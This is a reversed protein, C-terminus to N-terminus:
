SLFKATEKLGELISIKPNYGLLKEAKTIDSYNRLIEGKRKPAYKTSIDKNPFLEKLLNIIKNVSTEEGTGLQFINYNNELKSILSLYIGRCIDEVYVFDRTQKGNGYITLIEDNLIQKIFLPIVSNKHNCYPGYVNSFRLVVTELDYSESFASCYGEGALKSAGYPSLPAPVKKESLPMEQEGLPAASSAQVFRRVNNEKCSELLNLIGHVNVDMDFLPDKISEIVGVQAALNVVYDCKETNKKVIKDDRIDGKIFSLRNNDFRSLDEKKGSFLNDIIRVQWKTKNLIFKIFNLGIFGCGGTILINTKNQM